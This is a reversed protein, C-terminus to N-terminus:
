SGAGLKFSGVLANWNVAKDVKRYEADISKQTLRSWTTEETPKYKNTDFGYPIQLGMLNSLLYRDHIRKWIFVEIHLKKGSVIQLIPSFRDLWENINRVKKDKVSGSFEQRHIEIYPARERAALISIIQMFDAYNDASPDLNGDVFLIWKAHELIPQLQELYSGINRQVRVDSDLPKWWGSKRLKNISSVASYEKFNLAVSETAIIGSLPKAKHTEIAEQCWDLDSKPVCPLQIPFFTVRGKNQINKLFHNARPSLHSGPQKLLTSWGGNRLDRVLGQTMVVDRLQDFLEEEYENCACFGGFFIDPMIAYEALLPM